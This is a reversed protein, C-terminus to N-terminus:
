RIIRNSGCVFPPRDHVLIDSVYRQVIVLPSMLHGHQQWPHISVFRDGPSYLVRSCPYALHHPLHFPHRRSIHSKAVFSTRVPIHKLAPDVFREPNAAYALKLVAARNNTITKALGHHVAAPTLYGIGSHRHDFNNWDIQCFSPYITQIYGLVVGSPTTANSRKKLMNLDLKPPKEITEIVDAKKEWKLM